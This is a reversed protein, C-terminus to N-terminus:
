ALEPAAGRHRWRDWWGGEEPPNGIAISLAAASTRSQCPLVPRCGIPQNPRDVATGEILGARTGASPRAPARVRM